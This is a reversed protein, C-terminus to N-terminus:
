FLVVHRQLSGRSYGTPFEPGDFHYLFVVIGNGDSSPGIKNGVKPISFNCAWFTAKVKNCSQYTGQNTKLKNSRTEGVM